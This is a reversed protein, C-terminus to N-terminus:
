VGQQLDLAFGPLIDSSSDFAVGLGTQENWVELQTTVKINRRGSESGTPPM